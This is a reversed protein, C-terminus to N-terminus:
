VAVAAGLAVVEREGDVLGRACLALDHAALLCVDAQAATVVAAAGAILVDGHGLRRRGRGLLPLAPARRDRRRVLGDDDGLLRDVAGIDAVQELVADSPQVDVAALAAPAPGLVDEEAVAGLAGVVGARWAARDGLQVGLVRA